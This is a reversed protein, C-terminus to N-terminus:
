LSISRDIPDFDWKGKQKPAGPVNKARNLMVNGLVMGM